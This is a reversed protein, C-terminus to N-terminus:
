SDSSKRAVKLRGSKRSVRAGGTVETAVYKGEAVDLVRRISASSVAWTSGGTSKNLWMRLAESAVAQPVSILESVDTPDIRAAWVRLAEYAENALDAHRNILPVPDRKLAKALAPIVQQRIAVRSFSEDVNMPDMVVPLGLQECLAHTEYRRLLLLPRHVSKFQASTGALGAGRGINFLVTEARDDATHGVLVDDPLVSYRAKRAREELNPGPQITVNRVEFNVHLQAAVDRAADQDKHSSDRLNHNVHCATVNLGARVALAVLASSDPGGSLGCVVATGPVPFCARELLDDLEIM